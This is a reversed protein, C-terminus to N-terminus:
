YGMQQLQELKVRADADGPDIGLAQEWDARARLYDGKVAYALGRESYTGAYDPNLRLAQTYDEIARDLDGKRYYVRGRNRYAMDDNPNIRIAANYDAIAKDQDGKGAYAIGRNYYATAHNPNIRIAADWDAIARDLDGKGSYANGRYFYAGALDGGTSLALSLEEIANDLRGEAYLDKGRNLHDLAKQTIATGAAGLPRTIDALVPDDNRIRASYMTLLRGTLVDVARLRFQSFNAFRDFTGTLTVKAGLYHGIGVASEDSVLGFMQFRHEEDSSELDAGRALVTLSGSGLRSSLEDQLFASLGDLPADIKALAIETGPQVKAEVEGAAGAMAEDLGLLGAPLVRESPTSTCGSVALFVASVLFVRLKTM